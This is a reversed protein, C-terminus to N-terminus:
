CSALKVFDKGNVSLRNFDKPLVLLQGVEIEDPNEIHNLKVMDDVASEPRQPALLVAIKWLYDGSQVMYYSEDKVQRMMQFREDCKEPITFYEPFRLAQGAWIVDPNQISNLKALDDIAKEENLTPAFEAAIKSLSDGEIVTYFSQKKEMGPFKFDIHDSESKFKPNNALTLNYKYIDLNPVQGDRCSKKPKKLSKAKAHGKTASGRKTIVSAEISIASLLIFTLFTLM